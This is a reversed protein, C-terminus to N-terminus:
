RLSCYCSWSSSETSISKTIIALDSVTSTVPGARFIALNTGM